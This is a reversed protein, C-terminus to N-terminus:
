PVSDTAERAQNLKWEPWAKAKSPPQDQIVTIGQGPLLIESVGKDNHVYVGKGKFMAVDLSGNFIFGGWFDTGRIGITAVPTSVEFLPTPLQGIAGTIARFAGSLLHLQVDSSQSVPNYRYKRLEFRTGTALSIRTSDRLQLRLKGERTVLRDGELLLTNNKIPYKKGSRVLEIDGSVEAVNGIVESFESAQASKVVGFFLCVSLLAVSAVAM